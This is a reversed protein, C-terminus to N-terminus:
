WKRSRILSLRATSQAGRRRSDLWEYYEHALTEARPGSFIAVDVDGEGDPDRLTEVRWDGPVLRDEILEPKPTPKM